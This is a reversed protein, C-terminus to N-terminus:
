KLANGVATFLGDVSVISDKASTELYTMGNQQAFSEAAQKSVARYQEQDFKNGVLFAPPTELERYDDVKRIWGEIHQFSDQSTIDFVYVVASVRKYFSSILAGTREQGATDWVDLTVDGSSTSVIKKRSNSLLSPVAMDSFTGEVARLLISTKGVGYDGLIVVKREGRNPPAVDLSDSPSTPNTENSKACRQGM